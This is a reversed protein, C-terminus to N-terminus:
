GFPGAVYLGFVAAVTSAGRARAVRDIPAALIIVGMSPKGTRPILMM